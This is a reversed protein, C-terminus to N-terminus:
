PQLDEHTQSAWLLVHSWASELREAEEFDEKRLQMIHKPFNDRLLKQLLVQLSNFVFLPMQVETM